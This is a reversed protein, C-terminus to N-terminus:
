EGSFTPQQKALFAEVARRHDESNGTRRMLGAEFELAEPLSHGLAYGMARRLAAYALTPGSALRAAVQQVREALRDEPVVETALGLEAAEAASITRPQYLLELAKAPGVLRPLTWSCGTDCSLGIGAFALNFGASDAVIRQDALLALAAGAGAAIGNVAAIVPMGLEHLSRAIPVYHEHVTAWAEELSRERLALAHEKLDQGVSFARGSGTVVLCRADARDAVQRLARLLSAKTALNLANHAEPRRLTITAIGEAVRLEVPDGSM